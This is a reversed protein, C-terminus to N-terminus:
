TRRSHIYGATNLQYADSINAGKGFSTRRANGDRKKHYTKNTCAGAVFQSRHTSTAEHPRHHATAVHWCIAACAGVIFHALPSCTTVFHSWLMFALSAKLPPSAVLEADERIKATVSRGGGITNKMGAIGNRRFKALPSQAFVQLKSISLVPVDFHFGCIDDRRVNLQM